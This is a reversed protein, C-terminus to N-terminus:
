DNFARKLEVIELHEIWRRAVQVGHYWRLQTWDRRMIQLLMIASRHIQRNAVPRKTVYGTKALVISGISPNSECCTTPLPDIAIHLRQRYTDFLSDSSTYGSCLGLIGWAFPKIALEGLDLLRELMLVTTEGLMIHIKLDESVPHCSQAATLCDQALALSQAFLRGSVCITPTSACVLLEHENLSYPGNSQVCILAQTYLYYFRPILELCTAYELVTSSSLVIPPLSPSTSPTRTGKDERAHISTPGDWQSVAHNTPPTLPLQLNQVSSLHKHEEGRARAIDQEMEHHHYREYKRIAGRQNQDSQQLRM